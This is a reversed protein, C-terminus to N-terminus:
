VDKDGKGIPFFMGRRTKQGGCNLFLEGTDWRQVSKDTNMWTEQGCVLDIHQREMQLRIEERDSESTLGRMNQTAAVVRVAGRGGKKKVRAGAHEDREGIEKECDTGDLTIGDFTLGAANKMIQKSQSPAM